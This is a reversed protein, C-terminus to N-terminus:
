SSKIEDFKDPNLIGSTTMILENLLLASTKDEDHLLIM